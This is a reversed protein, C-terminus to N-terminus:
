GSRGCREIKLGLDEAQMFPGAGTDHRGKSSQLWDGISKPLKLRLLRMSGGLANSDIGVCIEWVPRDSHQLDVVVLGILRMRRMMGGLVFVRSPLNLGGIECHRAPDVNSYSLRLFQGGNSTLTSGTQAFPLGDLLTMYNQAVSIRRRNQEHVPLSHNVIRARWDVITKTHEATQLSHFLQGWANQLLTINSPKIFLGVVLLLAEQGGGTPLLGQDLGPLCDPYPESSSVPILHLSAVRGGNGRGVERHNVEAWRGRLFLDDYLRRFHIMDSKSSPTLHFIIVDKWFEFDLQTFYDDLALRTRRAQVSLETPILRTWPGDFTKPSKVVSIVNAAGHFEVPPHFDFYSTTTVRGNWADAGTGALQGSVLQTSEPQPLAASLDEGTSLSTPQNNDKSLQSPSPARRPKTTDESPVPRETSAKRKHGRSEQEQSDHDRSVHGPICHASWLQEFKEALQKAAKFVISGGHNLKKCGAIMSEFDQKFSTASTYAGEALKGKIIDLDIRGELLKVQLRAPINPGDSHVPTLFFRNYQSNERDMIENLITQCHLLDPEKNSTSNSARCGLNQTQIPHDHRQPGDKREQVSGQQAPSLASPAAPQALTPQQESSSVLATMDDNIQKFRSKFAKLEDEATSARQTAANLRAELDANQQEAARLREQGDATRRNTEELASKSKILDLKTLGHNVKQSALEVTVRDLQRKSAQTQTSLESTLTATREKEAQLSQELDGIRTDSSKLAAEVNVIASELSAQFSDELSNIRTELENVPATRISDLDDQVKQMLENAEAKAKDLSSQEHTKSSM